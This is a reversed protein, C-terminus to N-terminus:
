LKEQLLIIFKPKQSKPLEEQFILFKKVNSSFTGDGSIYSFLVVEKLPKKKQKKKKNQKKLGPGLLEM